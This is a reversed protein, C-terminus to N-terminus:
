LVAEFPTNRERRSCKKGKKIYDPEDESCDKRVLSNADCNNWTRRAAEIAADNRRRAYYRETTSTSSHGMPVSVSKISDIGADLYIQGFTRRLTRPDTSIGIDDLAYALTKRVVNASLHETSGIMPPFLAPANEKCHGVRASLYSLLVPRLVPLVPVTRPAGYSYEGKVHVIDLTWSDIDLDKLDLLRLEKTRCGCGVFVALMAYSRILRYEDLEPFKSFASRVKKLDDDALPPYRGKDRSPRLGPYKQACTRVAHNGCYDFFTM